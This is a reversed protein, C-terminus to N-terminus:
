WCQKYGIRPVFGIVRDAGPFSPSPKKSSMAVDPAEM